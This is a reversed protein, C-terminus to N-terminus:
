HLRERKKRLLQSAKGLRQVLKEHEHDVEPPEISAGEAIAFETIDPLEVRGTLLATILSRTCAVSANSEVLLQELDEDEM